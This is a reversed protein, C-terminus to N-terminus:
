RGAGKARDMYKLHEVDLRIADGSKIFQPVMVEVGNELRAAKWTSDQQVHVPPATDAVRVTLIDPFLVSIPRGEVSEVQLQMEPLLFKTQPGVVASSISIQEYTEPNMFYCEGANEYLFDMSQREVPLDELKLEARYSHEWLTGTSLNKLRARAAGGMQGQGPHYECAIVKYAQGEWRIAMGARLQSAVIM